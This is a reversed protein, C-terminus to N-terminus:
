RIAQPTKVPDKPRSPLKKPAQEVKKMVEAVGRELQPDKGDIVSKPDNEVVIDPSVGEGEIVWDGQLNNSAFQPVNVVGGDLLPGYSTIGVVGGWSRKGILPGLGAQRFMYPFIDGDSASTESLLCVLHGYFTSQPYTSPADSIRSFRTGLLQRRLREILMQSVNGGGNGRVDIVLGEKRIQGYYWKIFERIGNAGMDPVHLYGVRGGTMQDVKKRNGEVWELYILNSENTIPNYSISRAGDKAPRDNLLLRVPQDAKGRLMRYPNVPAALDEGDIELVYDGVKANVGIETLPSRYLAEENQGKFIKAIRYRGSAEDLEFRAGPLAVRPREPMEFDGGDIYAHGVNLESIMEGIIYNLDSRHGVYELQPAYQRRLAEWDYGHMNQVYFFDRFRRWVENFIQAFEQTPVRDVSLSAVSVTKRTDKGRPTADYINIAPGQRVVVKNGSSAMAYTSINEALVTEKRDTLSLIVLDTPRDSERGYYFNGTRAYLLHGKVAVLGVYNNSAIPVRAVRSSLGDWDISFNPKRDAKKEEKKEDKKEDKKEITVEDSKPPFPHKVDKRLAMAFIGFGRATAFNFERSSIQPQFERESIFYLFNGDPDWAPSQTDFLEDSVQRTQGDKESWIFIGTNDNPLQRSFAIHASDPAWEASQIFGIPADAIEKKSKDALTVVYLKGDKDTYVLKKGDPSWDLGFIFAKSGTTIQEPKGTGDQNIVYIEEEGSADSVYAIRSGDPSWAPSKDNAGSSRTLNRIVGTEAPLTFIDGRATLLAREGKPSLQVGNIQGAVKKSAPRTAVGDNPVNITLKRPKSGPKTDITHLEGSLEYVIQTGNSRAPWRVDWDKYETIARTKRTAPDFEYLNMTGSRDSSFYIKTGIWMPDRETRPTQSVPEIQSTKMDFIYLDQAWGGQYRKWTRFDRSLPSYVAKTGDPSLDGFGSIPMPLPKPLGGEVPVVYLRGDAVSFYDRQSRFVVGKGDPTWGMVVNDYGWRAPLPGRAPYYTLQKPVGGSAPMVYVQEDGDYQGTFAIWNGDPSFKAFIELGPHATLRIANGGGAPAKWLDGAYSFVVQDQHLDPFRLLKTQGYASTLALM